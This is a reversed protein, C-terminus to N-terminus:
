DKENEAQAFLESLKIPLASAIKILARAEEYFGDYKSNSTDKRGLALLGEIVEHAEALQARLQLLELLAVKLGELQSRKGTVNEMCRCGGNTRMGERKTAFLCASDGCDIEIM